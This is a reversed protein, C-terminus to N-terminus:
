YVCLYKPVFTCTYYTYNTSGGYIYMCYFSIVCHYVLLMSMLLVLGIPLRSYAPMTLGLFVVSWALFLGGISGLNPCLETTCTLFLCVRGLCHASVPLLHM